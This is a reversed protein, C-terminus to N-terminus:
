HIDRRGVSQRVQEVANLYDAIAQRYALQTARYSRESDLFDLLSAAGREYSYQSVERSKLSVDLYGSEFYQMIRESARMGDYARQVDTM